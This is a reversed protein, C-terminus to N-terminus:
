HAGGDGPSYMESNLAILILLTRMGERLLKFIGEQHHTSHQSSELYGRPRGLEGGEITSFFFRFLFYLAKNDNRLYVYCMGYISRTIKM